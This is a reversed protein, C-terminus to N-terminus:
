GHRGSRRMVRIQRRRATRGGGRGSAVVDLRLLRTGRRYSMKFKWRRNAFATSRRAVPKLSGRRRGMLAVDLACGEPCRTYATLRRRFRDVHVRLELRPGAPPPAPQPAPHCLTLSGTPPQQTSMGRMSLVARTYAEGSPKPSGDLNWIGFWEEAEAPNSEAATWSYVLLRDVNCDSRPLQTALATLYTARDSEAVSTSPWGVETIDIPVSPGFLQDVAQRFAALRLYLYPLTPQYPHLGIGDVQGALDPRHALMGKLFGVEDLALPPNVLALGGIVVRAQPDVVHVAQRALLYLDAYRAPADGQSPWFATSNEENWIEYDLVPMADLSPHTGWFSGGRGYRAALAGAFEAFDSEHAAAPSQDGVGDGAWLPSSDLVPYWRLDREALAQVVADTSSWDYDHTGGSPRGPEVSSWRADARVLQLGGAEMASLQTGWGNTGGAFLPQANVGYFGDVGGGRAAAPFSTCAALGGLVLILVAPQRGALGHLAPIRGV